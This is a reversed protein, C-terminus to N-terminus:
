PADGEVLPRGLAARLAADLKEVLLPRDSMPPAPLGHPEYWAAFIREMMQEWVPRPIPPRAAVMASYGVHGCKQFGQYAMQPTGVIPVLVWESM